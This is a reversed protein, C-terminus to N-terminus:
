LKQIRGADDPSVLNQLELNTLAAAVVSVDTKVKVFTIHVDTSHQEKKSQFSLRLTTRENNLRIGDKLQKNWKMLFALVTSGPNDLAPTENIFANIYYNNNPIFIYGKNFNTVGNKEPLNVYETAENVYVEYNLCAASLGTKGTRNGQEDIQFYTGEPASYYVFAEDFAPIGQFVINGFPQELTLTYSESKDGNEM